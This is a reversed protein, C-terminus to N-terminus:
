RGPSGRRELSGDGVVGECPEVPQNGRQKGVVTGSWVQLGGKGWPQCGLVSCHRGCGLVNTEFPRTRKGGSWEGSSPGDQRGVRWARLGEVSGGPAEAAPQVRWDEWDKGPPCNGCNHPEMSTM